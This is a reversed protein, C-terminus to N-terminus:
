VSQQLLVWGPSGKRKTHQTKMSGVMSCAADLSVSLLSLGLVHKGSSLVVAIPTIPEPNLFQVAPSGRTTCFM